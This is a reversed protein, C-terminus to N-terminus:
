ADAKLFTRLYAASRRVNGCFDEGASGELSVNGDYGAKQLASFFSGYDEGDGPAPINRANKASAIHSHALIDGYAPLSDRPEGEADLHYLDVLLRVGPRDVKRVLKAAEACTTLINCERSQLPEICCVMGRAEFAPAIVEACLTRLQEWARARDFGKPVARAGGSGFTVTRVGLLAARPLAQELYSRAANPDANEGTLRLTGPFLLNAALCVTGADRLEEARRRLEAEPRAAIESLGIEAYAVGLEPLSLIRNDFLSICCGIKM